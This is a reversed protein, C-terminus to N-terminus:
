KKGKNNIIFLNIILNYYFNLTNLKNVLSNKDCKMNERASATQVSVALPNLLESLAPM